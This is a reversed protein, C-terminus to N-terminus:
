PDRRSAPRPPAAPRRPRRDPRRIVAHDIMLQRRRCRSRAAAVSCLSSISQPLEGVAPNAPELSATLVLRLQTFQDVGGVSSRLAKPHDCPNDGLLDGLHPEVLGVDPDLEDVAFDIRTLRTGAAFGIRDPDM